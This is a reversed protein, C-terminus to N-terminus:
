RKLFFWAVYVLGTVALMKKFGLMAVGFGVHLCFNGLWVFGATIGFGFVVGLAVVAAVGLAVLIAGLAALVFDSLTSSRKKKYM